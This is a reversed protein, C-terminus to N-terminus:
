LADPFRCVTLVPIGDKETCRIVRTLPWAEARDATIDNVRVRRCGEAELMRLAEALPRGTVDPGNMM